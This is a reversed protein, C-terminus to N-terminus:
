TGRTVIPKGGVTLIGSTPTSNGGQDTFTGTFPIEACAGDCSGNFRGSNVNSLDVVIIGGDLPATITGKGSVTGQHYRIAADPSIVVGDAQQGNPFHVWGNTGAPNLFYTTQLAFTGQQTSAVAGTDEPPPPPNGFQASPSGPTRVAAHPSTADACATILVVTAVALAPVSRRM